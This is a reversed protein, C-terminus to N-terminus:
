FPLWGEAKQPFGRELLCVSGKPSLPKHKGGPPPFPCRRLGWRGPVSDPLSGRGTKVWAPSLPSASAAGVVVARNQGGSGALEAQQGSHGEAGLAPGAGPEQAAFCVWSGPEWVAGGRWGPSWVAEEVWGSGGEQSPPPSSVSHPCVPRVGPFPWPKGRGDGGM